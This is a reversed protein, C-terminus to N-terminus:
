QKNEKQEIFNYIKDDNFGICRKNQIQSNGKYTNLINIIEAQENINFDEFEFKM